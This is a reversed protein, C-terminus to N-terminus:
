RKQQERPPGDTQVEQAQRSPSPSAQLDCHPAVVARQGDAPLQQQFQAVEVDPALGRDAVAQRVHLTAADLAGVEDALQEVARVPGQIVLHHTM